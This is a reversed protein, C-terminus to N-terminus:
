RGAAYHHEGAEEVAGPDPRGDHEDQGEGDLRPDHGAEAREVDGRVEHQQQGHGAPQDQPRLSPGDGPGHMPKLKSRTSEVGTRVRPGPRRSPPTRRDSQHRDPRQARRLPHRHQQDRRGRRRATTRYATSALTNPSSRATVRRRTGVTNTTAVTFPRSATGAIATIRHVRCASSRRVYDESPEPQDSPDATGADDAGRPLINAM